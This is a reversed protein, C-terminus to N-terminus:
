SSARSASPGGKVKEGMLRRMIELNRPDDEPTDKPTELIVAAEQVGPHHLLARFADLGVYGKGIHEHLDRHSGRAAKSDNAHIARLRKLGILRNFQELTEYVEDARAFAYGAALTHATDLCVGIREAPQIGDLMRAIDEFSYGLRRGGGGMNELLVMVKGGVMKFARSIADTLRRIGEDPTSGESYAGPHIVHYDAGLLNCNELDEILARYSRAYLREDSTCLNPLYPTHVVLPRLDLEARRRQFAAANEPLIKGARWMRPSRTFIQLTTCGLRHADDLAGVLGKRVSCHVGLRM